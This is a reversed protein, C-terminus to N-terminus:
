EIGVMKKLEAVSMNALQEDEKQAIIDMIHKKRASEQASARRQEAEEIKTRFIHEVISMKNDNDTNSSKQILGTATGPNGAKQLSIYIANLDEPSLDWLDEVTISGKFPFRYKKRAAVEFLSM